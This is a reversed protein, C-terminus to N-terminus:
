PQKPKPKTLRAKNLKEALAKIAAHDQPHAYLDVRTLGLEARRQRLAQGRETATKATM